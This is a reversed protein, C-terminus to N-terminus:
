AATATTMAATALQDVYENWTHGCHGKVHEFRVPRSLRATALEMRLKVTLETNSTAREAGRAAAATYMSDYYITVRNQGAQGSVWRLARIMATIEATNNSRVDAGEYQWHEPDIHVVGSEEYVVHGEEHLSNQGRQIAAFAWGAVEDRDDQLEANTSGGNTYVACEDYARFCKPKKHIVLAEKKRQSKDNQEAVKRAKVVKKM